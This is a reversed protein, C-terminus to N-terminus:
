SLRCLWLRPLLDDCAYPVNDIGRFHAFGKVIVIYLLDILLFNVISSLGLAVGEPSM